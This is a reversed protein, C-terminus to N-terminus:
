VAALRQKSVSYARLAEVNIPQAVPERTASLTMAAARQLRLTADARMEEFERRASAIASGASSPKKKSPLIATCFGLAKAEDADMYRDEDMLAAMESEPRGTREAYIKAFLGALLKLDATRKEKARWDGADIGWPNHALFVSSAHFTIVDGSMPILSGCSIAQAGITFEVRAPHDAFMQYIELGEDVYGGISSLKGRILSVEGAERLESKVRRATIGDDAWGDGVVGFLEIDLIDGSREAKITM